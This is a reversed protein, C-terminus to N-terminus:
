LKSANLLFVTATQHRYDCVSLAESRLRPEEKNASMCPFIFRFTAISKSACWVWFLLIKYDTNEQVSKKERYSYQKEPGVPQIFPICLPNHRSLIQEIM